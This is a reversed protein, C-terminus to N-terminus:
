NIHWQEEFPIFICLNKNFARISRESDSMYIRPAAGGGWVCVCLCVSVGEGVSSLTTYALENKDKRKREKIIKTKGGTKEDKERRELLMNIDRSKIYLQRTPTYVCTYLLSNLWFGCDRQRTVITKVSKKGLSKMRVIKKKKVVLRRITLVECYRM